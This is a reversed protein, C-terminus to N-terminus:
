AGPIYVLFIRVKVMSVLSYVNRNMQRQERMMPTECKKGKGRRVKTLILKDSEGVNTQGGELSCTVMLAEARETRSAACTTTYAWSVVARNSDSTTSDTPMGSVM